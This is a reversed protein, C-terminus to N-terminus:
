EDGYTLECLPYFGPRDHLDPGLLGHCEERVDEVTKLDWVRYDHVVACLECPLFEKSKAIVVVDPDVPSGHCVGVCIPLNLV